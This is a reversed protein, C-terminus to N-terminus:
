APFNGTVSSTAGTLIESRECFGYGTILKRVYLGQKSLSHLFPTDQKNLYDWRLADVLVILVKEKKLPSNATETIMKKM